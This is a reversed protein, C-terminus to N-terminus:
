ATKEINNTLVFYAEDTRNEVHIETEETRDSIRFGAKSFLKMSATNEPQVNAWIFHIHEQQFLYNVMTRLADSGFGKKQASEIIFIGIGASNSKANYEFVDIMGVPKQMIPDCIMLRFQGDISLPLKVKSIFQLIDNLSFPTDNNSLHWYRSDNEIALM